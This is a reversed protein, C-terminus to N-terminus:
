EKTESPRGGKQALEDMVSRMLRAYRMWDDPTLNERFTLVMMEQAAPPLRRIAELVDEPLDAPPQHVPIGIDLPLAPRGLLSDVSVGFFTALRDLMGQEDGPFRHGSEWSAYTTRPVGLADAVDGQTHKKQQRLYRLRDGFTM